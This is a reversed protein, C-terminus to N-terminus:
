KLYALLKAPDAAVKLDYEFQITQTIAAFCSLAFIVLAAIHGVDSLSPINKMLM